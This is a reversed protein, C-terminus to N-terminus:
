TYRPELAEERRRDEARGKLLEERLESIDAQVPLCAKRLLQENRNARSLLYHIVQDYYVKEGRRAQLQAALRLLEKHVEDSVSITTDGLSVM